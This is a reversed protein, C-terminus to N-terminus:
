RELWPEGEATGHGGNGHVGPEGGGSGHHNAQGGPGGRGAEDGGGRLARIKRGLEVRLEYLQLVQTPTLVEQLRAHEEQFLEAEQRKFAIMREIIVAAEADDARGSELFPEIQRRTERESAALARRRQEFERAIVSLRAEEDEDLGLRHRIIEGVRARMREELRARDESSRPTRQGELPAVAVTALLLLLPLLSRLARM